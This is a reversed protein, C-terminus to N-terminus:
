RDRGLFAACDLEGDLITIELYRSRAGLVAGGFLFQLNAVEGARQLNTEVRSVKEVDGLLYVALTRLKHHRIGARRGDDM